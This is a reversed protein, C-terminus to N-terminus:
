RAGALQAKLREGLARTMVEAGRTTMHGYDYFWREQIGLSSARDYRWVAVGPGLSGLVEAYQRLADPYRRQAQEVYADRLPMQVVVVDLGDARALAILEVLPAKLGETTAYDELSRTVDPTVDYQAPGEELEEKRWVVRGDDSIPLTAERGTLASKLLRRLPGQADYTRWVYGALLSLTWDKDFTSAREDLSAFRRFRENPSVSANFSWDEVGVVLVKAKSLKARNREYLLRADYPTGRTVGLNMVGGRPLGLAQELQRPAVADRVRSSGMLLVTPPESPAIVRAEMAEIIGSNSGPVWTWVWDQRALGLEVGLLLLTALVAGKPV